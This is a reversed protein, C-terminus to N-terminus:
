CMEDIGLGEFTWWSVGMVKSAVRERVVGMNLELRESKGKLAIECVM